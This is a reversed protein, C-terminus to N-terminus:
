LEIVNVKLQYFPWVNSAFCYIILNANYFIQLEIEM